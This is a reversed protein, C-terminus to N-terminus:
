RWNFYQAVVYTIGCTASTVFAGWLLDISTVLYPWGTITALNTLDYTGYCLLGLFAGALLAYMLSNKELAPYVVFFLLGCLYLVYFLAAPFLKTQGLFGGLYEQYIKKALLLLWIFDLSLFCIAAIGFLKIYNNM